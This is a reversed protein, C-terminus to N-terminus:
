GGVDEPKKTAPKGAQGSKELQNAEEAPSEPETQEEVMEVEAQLNEFGGLRAVQGEFASSLMHTNLPLVQPGLSPAPHSLPLLVM